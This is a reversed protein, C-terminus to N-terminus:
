EAASTNNTDLAAYVCYTIQERIQELEDSQYLISLSALRSIHPYADEPKGSHTAATAALMTDLLPRYAIDDVSIGAAILAQEYHQAVQEYAASQREIPLGKIIGFAEPANHTAMLTLFHAYNEEDPKAPYQNFYEELHGLLVQDSIKEMDLTTIIEILPAYDRRAIYGFATIHTLMDDILPIEGPFLKSRDMSPFCRTEPAQKYFATSAEMFITRTQTSLDITNYGLRDLMSFFLARSMAKADEASQAPIQLTAELVKSRNPIEALGRLLNAGARQRVVNTPDVNTWVNIPEYINPENGNTRRQVEIAAVSIDRQIDQSTAREIHSAFIYPKRFNEISERLNQPLDVSLHPLAHVLKLMPEPTDDFDIFHLADALDQARIASDVKHPPETPRLVQRFLYNHLNRIANRASTMDGSNTKIINSLGGAREGNIELLLPQLTPLIITDLGLIGAEPFADAVQEYMIGLQELVFRRAETTLKCADFVSDLNEAKAGRSINVPYGLDGVRGYEGIHKGGALYTRINWDLPIGTESHTLPRSRAWRELMYQAGPDTQQREKLQDIVAKPSIHAPDIMMVGRGLSADTPKIVIAEGGNMLSLVTAQLEADGATVNAVLASVHPIDTQALRQQMISKDWTAREFAPPNIYKTTISKDWAGENGTAPFADIRVPKPLDGGYPNGRADMIIGRGAFYETTHGENGFALEPLLLVNCISEGQERLQAAATALLGGNPIGSRRIGLVPQAPDFYRKWIEPKLVSGHDLADAKLNGNVERSLEVMTAALHGAVMEKTQLFGALEDIREDPTLDAFLAHNAAERANEDLPLAESPPQTM